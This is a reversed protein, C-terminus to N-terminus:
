QFTILITVKRPKQPIINLLQLSTRRFITPFTFSPMHTQQPSKQLTTSTLSLLPPPSSKRTLKLIKYNPPPGKRKLTANSTTTTVTLDEKPISTNPASHHSPLRITFWRTGLAVKLFYGQCRM